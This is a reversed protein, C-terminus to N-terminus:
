DTDGRSRSRRDQIYMISGFILTLAFMFYVIFREPITLSGNYFIAFLGFYTALYGLLGELAYRPKLREGWQKIMGRYAWPMVWRILLPISVGIAGGLLTLAGARLFQGLTMELPM